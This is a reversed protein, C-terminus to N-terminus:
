RGQQTGLEFSKKVEFAQMTRKIDKIDDRVTNMDSQLQQIQMKQESKIATDDRVLGLISGGWYFLCMLFVPALGIMFVTGKSLEIKESMKADVRGMFGANKIPKGQADLITGQENPENSQHIEVKGNFSAVNDTAPATGFSM